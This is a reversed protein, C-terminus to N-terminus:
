CFWTYPVSLRNTTSPDNWGSRGVPLVCVMIMIAASAAASFIRAKFEVDDDVDDVAALEVM